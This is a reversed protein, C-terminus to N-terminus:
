FLSPSITIVETRRDSIGDGGLGNSSIWGFKMHYNSVTGSRHPAQPCTGGRLPQSHGLFIWAYYSITVKYLLAYHSLNSIHYCIVCMVRSFSFPATPACVPSHTHGPSRFTLDGWDQLRTASSLVSKHGRGIGFLFIPYKPHTPASIGLSHPQLTYGGDEMRNISGNCIGHLRTTAFSILLLQAGRGRGSESFNFCQASESKCQLQQAGGGLGM